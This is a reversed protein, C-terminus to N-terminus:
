APEKERIQALYGIKDGFPDGFPDSDNPKKTPTLESQGKQQQTSRNELESRAGTNRPRLKDAATSRWFLPNIGVPCHPM